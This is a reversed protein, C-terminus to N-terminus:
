SQFNWIIFLNEEANYIFFYSNFLLEIILIVIILILCWIFLLPIKKHSLNM